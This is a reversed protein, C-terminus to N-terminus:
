ATMYATLTDVVDDAASYALRGLPDLYFKPNSLMNNIEEIAEDTYYVIFSVTDGDFDAGLRGLHTYHPSVSNFTKEGLRPWSTAKKAQQEGNIIVDVVDYATTTIVRIKTPYVSGLGTVPYRTVTAPYKDVLDYICVYFFETYTIPRLKKRDVDDPIQESAKFVRVTNKKEEVLAIYGGAVTPYTHRIEERKYYSFKGTIGDTGYWENKQEQTLDVQKPELTKKDFVNAVMSHADMVGRLGVSIVRNVAIPQLAELYQFLGVATENFGILKPDDLSSAEVPLSTIVNRTGMFVARKSWKGQLFKHKGDFVLTRFYEYLEFVSKQLNFRIDDVLSLDDSHINTLTNSISIIKRYISNVDDESPKGNEDIIYDRLGAPLVLLYRGLMDSDKFKEILEIRYKRQTSKKNTFVIKRFHKLFFTIGTEGEVANSAIFDKSEEDWVAYAKGAMIEGYLRKLKKLEKYILPHLIDIKLDIFGFTTLRQVTGVQGFIETSFLGSPHFDKSSSVFVRLDKVEGMQKTLAPNLRLLDFNLPDLTNPKM